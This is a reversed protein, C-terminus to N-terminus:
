QLQGVHPVTLTDQQTPHLREPEFQAFLCHQARQRLVHQLGALDLALAQVGLLHPGRESAPETEVGACESGDVAVDLADDLHHEVGGPVIVGLNRLLAQEVPVRRQKRSAAAAHVADPDARPAVVRAPRHLHHGSRDAALTHV